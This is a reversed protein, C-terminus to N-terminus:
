AGRTYPFATSTGTANTVTINAAGASGAPVSAVLLTDNHVTYAAANTAGFKVSAAGTVGTFGTGVITVLSGAAAATPTASVITPAAPTVADDPTVGWARFHYPASAPGVFTRFTMGYALLTTRNFTIDERANIQVNPLHVLIIRDKQDLGVLVIDYRTNAAATTVTVSGDPAVEVDFYAEANTENAELGSFAVTWFGPATESIVDDGNHAAITTEDGPQPSLTFGDESYYGLKGDSGTPTWATGTPPTPNDARKRIFIAGNKILRVLDANNVQMYEPTAM